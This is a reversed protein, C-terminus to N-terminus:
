EGLKKEYEIIKQKPDHQWSFRRVEHFGCAQYMRQAPAFFPSDLTSVKATLIAMERFRRLIEEIQLAGLGRGRFQLLVCNHGIVGFRPRQRPDWSGFGAIEGDLRTLFISAGVTQPQAFVDRDYEEWSKEEREWLSPDSKVVEAYCEKLLRAVTGPKQDLAPTFEVNM